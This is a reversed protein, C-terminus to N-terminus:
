LSRALFMHVPLQVEKQRSRFHKSIVPRVKIAMRCLYGRDESGLAMRRM